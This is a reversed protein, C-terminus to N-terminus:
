HVGKLSFLSHSSKNISGQGRISIIDLLRSENPTSTTCPMSRGSMLCVDVCSIDSAKRMTIEMRLELAGSRTAPACHRICMLRCVAFLLRFMCVVFVLLYYCIALLLSRSRTQVDINSYGEWLNRSSTWIGSSTNNRHGVALHSLSAEVEFTWGCLTIYPTSSLLGSRRVTDRAVGAIPHGYFGGHDDLRIISM